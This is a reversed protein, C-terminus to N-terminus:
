SKLLFPQLMKINPPPPTDGAGGGGGKGIQPAMGKLKKEIQWQIRHTQFLGL